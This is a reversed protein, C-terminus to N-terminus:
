ERRRGIPQRENVTISASLQLLPFTECIYDIDIASPAMNPVTRLVREVMPWLHEDLIGLGEMRMGFPTQEMGDEAIGLVIGVSHRAYAKADDRETMDCFLACFPADSETPPRRPDVGVTIALARGYRSSCWAALASDAHLALAYATAIRTTNLAM